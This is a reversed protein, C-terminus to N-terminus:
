RASQIFGSSKGDILSFILMYSYGQGTPNDVKNRSGGTNETQTLFSLNM